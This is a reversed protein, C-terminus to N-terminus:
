HPHVEAQVDARLTSSDAYRQLASHSCLVDVAAGVWGIATARAACEWYDACPIMSTHHQLAGRTISLMIPHKVTEFGCGYVQDVAATSCVCNCILYQDVM